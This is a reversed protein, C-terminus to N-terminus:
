KYVQTKGNIELTAKYVDKRLALDLQERLVLGLNIHHMVDPNKYLTEIKQAAVFKLIQATNSKANLFDETVFVQFGPYLDKTSTGNCTYADMMSQNVYEDKSKREGNSSVEGNINGFKNLNM